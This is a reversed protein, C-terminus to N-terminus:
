TFQTIVTVGVVLKILDPSLCYQGKTVCSLVQQLLLVAKGSRGVLVLATSLLTNSIGAWKNFRRGNVTLPILGTLVM